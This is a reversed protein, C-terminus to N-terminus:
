INELDGIAKVQLRVSKGPLYALPNENIEIVEITKENAGANKAIEKAELSAAEITKDRGLKDYHFVRDVEGSVQGLAAGVANAVSFNDPIILESIGKIKEQNIITGGGVFIAPVEASSTKMKDISDELLNTIQAKSNELLEKDINKILSPDGIDLKYRAVAIDTATLTEGGFVIAKETLLYGVSDPGIKKGNDKIISGGGLGISVIDPMRFNTRVGGVDTAVASQRPFGQKIYGIDTTTGGIDVIVSEDIGSLFAAGRMSNTPGCAFTLVPYSRVKEPRMLTGDNQSVYLPASIDLKSLANQFGTIIEEALKSLAANIITANEREILGVKGIENSLSVKIDPLKKKILEAARQEMESNLPSYVSNIAISDLDHTGIDDIIKNIEDEDLPSIERGDVEYGGKAFYKKPSLTDVLDQPWGIMQVLSDSAPLCLRIAAIKQLKKREVLANTFHTTGIMVSTIQNPKINSKNLVSKIANFVGDGVNETTVTKDSVLVKGDSMIVGDTNTGGVDVGIQM